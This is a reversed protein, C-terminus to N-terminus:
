AGWGADGGLLLLLMIGKVMERQEEFVFNAWIVGGFLMEVIRQLM